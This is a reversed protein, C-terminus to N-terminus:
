LTAMSPSYGGRIAQLYITSTVSTSGRRMSYWRPREDTWHKHSEVTSWYCAIAFIGFCKPFFNAKDAQEFRIITVQPHQTEIGVVRNFEAINGLKVIDNKTNM